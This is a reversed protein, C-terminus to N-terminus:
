YINMKFSHDLIDTQNIYIPPFVIYDIWACDYGDGMICKIMNGM